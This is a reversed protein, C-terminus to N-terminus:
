RARVLQDLDGRAGEAQALAQQGGVLAGLRPLLEDPAPLVAGSGRRSTACSRWRGLSTPPTRASTAAVLPARDEVSGERGITMWGRQDLAADDLRELLGLM